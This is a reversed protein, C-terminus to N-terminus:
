DEDEAALLSAVGVGEPDEDGGAAAVPVERPFFDLEAGFAPEVESGLSSM